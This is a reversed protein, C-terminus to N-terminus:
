PPPQIMAPRKKQPPFGLPTQKWIGRADYPGALIGQPLIYRQNTPQNIFNIFWSLDAFEKINEIPEKQVKIHLILLKGVHKKRESRLGFTKKKFFVFSRWFPVFDNAGEFQLHFFQLDQLSKPSTDYLAKFVSINQLQYFLFLLDCVTVTYISHM